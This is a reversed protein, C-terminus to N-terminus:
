AARARLWDVLGQWILDAARRAAEPSRSQRQRNTTAQGRRAWYRVRYELPSVDDQRLGHITLGIMAKADADYATRQELVGTRAQSRITSVEVMTGMTMGPYTHM